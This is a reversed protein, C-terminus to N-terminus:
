ETQTLRQDKAKLFDKLTKRESETLSEWNVGLKYIWGEGKEVRKYWIVEAVTTLPIQDPVLEVEVEIKNKYTSGPHFIHLGDIQVTNTGICLGDGSIDLVRGEVVRSRVTSDKGDVIKFRATLNASARDQKRREWPWRRDKLIKLMVEGRAVSSSWPLCYRSNGSEDGIPLMM